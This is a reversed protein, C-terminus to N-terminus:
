PTLLVKGTRGRRDHSEVAAAIDALAFRQEVALTIDGSVAKAIVEGFLATREDPTLAPLVKSGWFGDITIGRFIIDNMSGEFQWSGMGGFLTLHAGDALISLMDGTAPGGVSDVGHVIAAGGTIEAVRERWGDENTAAIRGIGADALEAIGDRRRVLGVVNVGRSQAFQAVLRGVTGGAANQAIWEGESVGIANLLALASAPMSVLQAATDDDLVDPVPVLGAARAVFKESWAGFAGGAVRQGVALNTVGEGLSEVVGTAETGARAPLSPTFGYDGSVTLLDHNHIASATMRVVVEGPGAVPDPVEEVHLEHAPSGFQRHILARM